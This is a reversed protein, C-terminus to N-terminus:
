QHVDVAHASSADTCVARSISAEGPSSDPPGRGRGGVGRSALLSCHRSLHARGVGAPQGLARASPRSHTSLLKSVLVLPEQVRRGPAAQRTRPAQGRPSCWSARSPSRESLRTELRRLFRGKPLPLPPPPPIGCVDRPRRPGNVGAPWAVPPLPRMTARSRSDRSGLQSAGRGVVSSMGLPKLGVLLGAHSGPVHVLDPSLSQVPAPYPPTDGAECGPGQQGGGPERWHQAPRTRGGASPPPQQTEVDVPRQVGPGRLGSSRVM